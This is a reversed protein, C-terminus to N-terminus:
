SIQLCGQRLSSTEPLFPMSAANPTTGAAAPEIARLLIMPFFVGIEAKLSHRFRTMLTFFISSTLALATPHTAAANKLLSLCLHQKIGNVFKDQTRFTPGSNELLIKLLELALM